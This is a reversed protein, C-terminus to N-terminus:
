KRKIGTFATKSIIDHTAMAAICNITKHFVLLGVDM